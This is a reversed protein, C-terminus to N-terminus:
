VPVKSLSSKTEIREYCYQESFCPKYTAPNINSIWQADKTFYFDTNTSHHHKSLSPTVNMVEITLLLFASRSPGPNMIIDLYYSFNLLISNMTVIILLWMKTEPLSTIYMGRASYEYELIKLLGHAVSYPAFIHCCVRIHRVPHHCCTGAVLCTHNM